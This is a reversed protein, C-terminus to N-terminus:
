SNLQEIKVLSNAPITAEIKQKGVKLLVDVVVINNKGTVTPTSLVKAWCSPYDSNLFGKSSNYWYTEDIILKESYEKIKLRIIGKKYKARNILILSIIGVSVIVATLLPYYVSM